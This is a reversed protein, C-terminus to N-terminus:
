HRGVRRGQGTLRIHIVGSREKRPHPRPYPRVPQRQACGPGDHKQRKQRQQGPPEPRGAGTRGIATLRPWADRHGLGVVPLADAVARTSEGEAHTFIRRDDPEPIDLFFDELLVPTRVFEILPRPSFPPARDCQHVDAREGPPGCRRRSRAPGIGLHRLHQRQQGPLALQVLEPIGTRAHSRLIIRGTIANRQTNHDCVTALRHSLCGHDGLFVYNGEGCSRPLPDDPDNTHVATRRDGKLCDPRQPHFVNGHDGM